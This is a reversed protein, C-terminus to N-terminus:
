MFSMRYDSDKAGTPKNGPSTYCKLPVSNSVIPTNQLKVRNKYVCTSLIAKLLLPKAANSTTVQMGIKGWVVTLIIM